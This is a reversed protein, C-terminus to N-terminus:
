EIVIRRVVPEPTGIIKLVYTGAPLHEADMSQECPGSPPTVTLSLVETGTLSYLRIAVAGGENGPLSINIKDATPNPYVKISEGTATNVLGTIDSAFVASWGGGTVSGNTQFGIFMKGSTSTVPLPLNDPSYAGSYEALLQQTELDYIVVRDNENETQFSTFSITVSQAGPPVIKWLCSSNNHYEFSGSGDSLSGASDELTVVGKCYDPIVAKYEMVWGASSGTIDSTFVVLVENGSSILNSPLTSGSFEGLLPSQPTPGDFVRLVDTVETEFAVFNLTIKSISDTGAQPSILWSCDANNGYAELPGSGDTISGTKLNLTHSGTCFNPYGSAPYTDFIAAQGDNFGAVNLLTYYGDSSGGWGFNFHFKDDQYGDCVFAHGGSSSFGSYYMPWGNDLNAQLMNAWETAPHDDKWSFYCAPSYGFYTKFAYPVDQSYAGSGGPGYMMEVAVGCHFQLEAIPYTNEHYISNSMGEWQYTTNAFDASINGYPPYYYSHSGTGQLPHRWYYMVQSMATAVCGAYVHGGPGDPDEPCLANYPYNQNWKCTLLPSVSKSFPSASLGHPGPQLYHKWLSATELSQLSENERIFAVADAYTQMFNRYSDPQNEHGYFGTISYGLVPPLVDEAAVVVFGEPDFTFIYCAVSGGSELTYIKDLLLDESSIGDEGVASKEMIFNVAVAYAQDKDVEASFAAFVLM